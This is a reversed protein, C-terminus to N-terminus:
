TNQINLLNKLQETSSFVLESIWLYGDGGRRGNRRKYCRLCLINEGTWPLLYLM